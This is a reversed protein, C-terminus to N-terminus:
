DHLRDDGTDLDVRERQLLLCLARQGDRLADRFTRM